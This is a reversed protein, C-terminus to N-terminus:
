QQEQVKGQVERVKIIEIFCAKEGGMIEGIETQRKCPILIDKKGFAGRQEQVKGQGERVKFGKYLGNKRSWM